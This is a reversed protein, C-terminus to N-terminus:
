RTEPRVGGTRDLQRATSPGACAAPHSFSSHAAVPREPPGHNDGCLCAHRLAQGPAPRVGACAASSAAGRDRGGGGSGEHRLHARARHHSRGDPLNRGAGCPALHVLPRDQARGGAASAPTGALLLRHRLRGRLLPYGHTRAPRDSPASRHRARADDDIRDGRIRLMEADLGYRELLAAVQHSFDFRTLQLPSVNVAVQRPAIGHDLWARFQRCVEELVWLGLPVILGSEEAINIIRLTPVHQLAPHHARLLAELSFLEGDETVQPQFHVALGGHRLARRLGLEIEGAQQALMSIEPSVRVWDAGGARKAQYMAADADRWLQACDTGDDPYLAFGISGGLELEGNGLQVPEKLCRLLKSACEAAAQAGDLGELFVMFEDGGTRAVTGNGDVVASIRAAAEKLCIDGALHGYSDNIQKFRDLDICVIALHGRSSEMRDLAARLRQEFLDRRPLDTLVDHQAQRILQNHLRERDTIDHMFAFMVRRGDLLVPQSAIDVQFTSGDRRRHLWPGSLQRPGIEALKERLQPTQEESLIDLLRLGRFEEQSYGYHLVAAENAQLFELTELDYMWMPHPNSAFLLRYQESALETARIEEELLTLIMGAALFYKPLNYIEPNLHLAPALHAVSVAGVWVLGWAIAGASSTVTATSLRRWGLDSMLVAVLGYCETLIIEAMLDADIGRLAFVVWGMCACAVLLVGLLQPRSRRLNMLAVTGMALAGLIACVATAVPRPNPLADFVVGTLWPAGLLLAVTWARTRTPRVEERSLVFSLATLVLTSLFAVAQLASSVVGHAPFAGSAFHLVIFLWGVTWARVVPTSRKRYLSSFLLFIAIAVILDIVDQM